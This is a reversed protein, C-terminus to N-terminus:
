SFVPWTPFSASRVPGPATLPGIRIMRYQIDHYGCTNPVVIIIKLVGM